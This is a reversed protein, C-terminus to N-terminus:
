TISETSLKDGMILLDRKSGTLVELKPLLVSNLTELAGDIQTLEEATLVLDFVNKQM